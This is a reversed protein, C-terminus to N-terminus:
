KDDDNQEEQPKENNEKQEDYTEDNEKITERAAEKTMRDTDVDLMYYEGRVPIHEGLENDYNPLNFLDRLEDIYLGGASTMMQAYAVKDSTKMYQLRSATALIQAGNAQENLTFAANTMTESFQIMFPEIAGEYFADMDDGIAANQLIKENVGFYNFVKTQILKQEEPDVTFSNTKVQQINEYYHPFLLLGQNEGQLNNRSFEEREKKLNGPKVFNTAQAAWRYTNSNKVAEQIAQDQLDLLALTGNLPANNEGFFDSKYQFKTLGACKDLEVSATKGNQFHYRLWPVGGVDLIEVNSPLVPEFGVTRYWKDFVPVIFVTNQMDLITSTRYLFQSWTSWDNPRKSLQTKMYPKASGLIEVKLKSIHRARADIAARVLDSEYIQGSWSRFVPAYGTLLEFYGDARAQIQKDTNTVNVGFIKELLSM